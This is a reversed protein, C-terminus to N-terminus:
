KKGNVQSFAAAVFQAPMKEQERILLELRKRDAPQLSEGFAYFSLMVHTFANCLGLANPTLGHGNLGIYTKIRGSVKYISNEDVPTEKPVEEGFQRALEEKSLESM